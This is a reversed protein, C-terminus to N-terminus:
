VPSFAIQQQWHSVNMGIDGTVSYNQDRPLSVVISGSRSLAELESIPQGAKFKTKLQEVPLWGRVPNRIQLEGGSMYRYSPVADGDGYGNLESDIWETIDDLGLKVSILKATRLLETTSKSSQVIERQFDKVLSGMIQREPRSEYVLNQASRCPRVM